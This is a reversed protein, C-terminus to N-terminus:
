EEEALERVAEIAAEVEEETNYHDAQDQLFRGDKLCNM